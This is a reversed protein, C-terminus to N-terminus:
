HQAFKIASMVHGVDFDPEEEFNAIPHGVYRYGREAFHSSILMSGKCNNSHYLLPRSEGVMRWRDVQYALPSGDDRQVAPVVQELTDLCHTTCSLSLVFYANHIGKQKDARDFFAKIVSRMGIFDFERGVYPLFVYDMGRLAADALAKYSFDVHPTGGHRSDMDVLFGKIHGLQFFEDTFFNSPAICQQFHIHRIFTATKLYGMLLDRNAHMLSGVIVLTSPRLTMELKAILTLVRELIAPVTDCYIFTRGNKQVLLQLFSALEADSFELGRDGYYRLV